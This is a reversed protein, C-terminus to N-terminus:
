NKSVVELSDDYFGYHKGGIDDIVVTYVTRGEFDADKVVKTVQGKKGITADMEPLWALYGTENFPRAVIVEDFKEIEIDSM